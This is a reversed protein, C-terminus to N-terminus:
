EKELKTIRKIVAIAEDVLKLEEKSFKNLTSNINNKIAKLEGDEDENSYFLSEVSVNMFDALKYIHEVAINRTGTEHKGTNVVSIGLCKSLDELTLNREKRIRRLNKGIRQNAKIRAVTNSRYSRIEEVEKRLIKILPKEEKLSKLYENIAEDDKEFTAKRLLFINYYVFNHHRNESKKCLELGQEIINNFDKTLKELDINETFKAKLLRVSANLLATAKANENDHNSKSLIKLIKELIDMAQEYIQTNAIVVSGFTIDLSNWETKNLLNQVIPAIIEIVEEYYAIGNEMIFMKLLKLADDIYQDHGYEEIFSNLKIELKEFNCDINTFKKLFVEKLLEEKKIDKNM